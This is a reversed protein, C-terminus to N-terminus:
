KKGTLRNRPDHDDHEWAFGGQVYRNRLFQWRSIEKVEKPFSFLYPENNPTSVGREIDLREPVDKNPTPTGVIPVAGNPAIWGLEAQSWANMTVLQSELAAISNAVLVVVEDPAFGIFAETHQVWRKAEEYSLFVQSADDWVWARQEADYVAIKFLEM